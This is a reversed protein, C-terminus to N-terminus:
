YRSDQVQIPWNTYGSDVPQVATTRNGAPALFTKRQEVSDLCTRPSVWGGIYHTSLTIQAPRSYSRECGDVASTFFPIIIGGTGVRRCAIAIIENIMCLSVRVKIIDQSHYQNKSVSNAKSNVERFGPQSALRCSYDTSHASLVATIATIDVTRSHSLHRWTLQQLQSPQSRVLCNSNSGVSSALAHGTMFRVSNHIQTVHKRLSHHTVYLGMPLLDVRVDRMPLMNTRFASTITLAQYQKPLDSVSVLPNINFRLHM